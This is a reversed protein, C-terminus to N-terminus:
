VAGGRHDVDGLHLALNVGLRNLLDAFQGLLIRLFRDGDDATPEVLVCRLGHCGNWILFGVILQPGVDAAQHGFEGAPRLDIRSAALQGPRFAGRHQHQRQALIVAALDEAQEVVVFQAFDGDHQGREARNLGVLDLGQQQFEDSAHRSRACQQAVVVGGFAQQLLIQRFLADAADHIFDASRGAAVHPFLEGVNLFFHQRVIELVFVRLRDRDHQRLQAGFMGRAHQRDQRLIEGEVDDGAHQLHFRHLLVDDLADLHRQAGFEHRVQRLGATAIQVFHHRFDEVVEVALGFGPEDGRQFFFVAFRGLADLRQHEGEVVQDLEVGARSEIASLPALSVTRSNKKLFM